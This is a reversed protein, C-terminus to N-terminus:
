KFYIRLVLKGFRMEDGDHVIRSQRPILRQGNLYTGNVSGLDVLTLTNDNYQMTAHARSVGEEVANYSSLDIDPYHGSQIDARGVTMEAKLRIVLPETAGSVHVVISSIGKLSTTGGYIRTNLADFASAANKLEQTGIAATNSTATAQLAMLIPNGCEDCFYEGEMNGTGCYNCIIM